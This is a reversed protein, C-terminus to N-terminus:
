QPADVTEIFHAIRAVCQAVDDVGDVTKEMPCMDDGRRNEILPVLEAYSAAIGHAQLLDLGARSMVFGFVGAVGADCLLAAAAKGIVRDAVAAGAMDTKHTTYLRFLPRVSTGTDTLADGDPKVIAVSAAQTEILRKAKELLTNNDM